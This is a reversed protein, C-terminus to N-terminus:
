LTKLSVVSMTFASTCLIVSSLFGQIFTALSFNEEIERVFENINQHIKICIILESLSRKDHSTKLQNQYYSKKPKTENGIESLREALENILGTAFSMFIVPLIILAVDVASLVFSNFVLYFSALWFVITTNDTEFPFWVKYPLEHAFIPVFIASFCTTCAFLWFVKFTKFALSVQVKVHSRIPFRLDSSLVLLNELTRLSKKILKLNFFFNCSKCLIGLYLTSLGVGDIFEVLTEAKITYIFGMLYLALFCLHALFGLFFYRWSQNGDQWMGVTKLIWFCLKFPQYLEADM